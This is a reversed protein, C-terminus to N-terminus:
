FIFNLQIHCTTKLNPYTNQWPLYSIEKSNSHVRLFTMLSLLEQYIQLCAIILSENAQLKQFINKMPWFKFYTWMVYEKRSSKIKKQNVSSVVLIPLKNRVERFFYEIHICVKYSLLLSIFVIMKLFINKLPFNFNRINHIFRLKEWNWSCIKLAATTRLHEEFYKSKFM